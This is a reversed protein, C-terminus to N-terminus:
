SLRRCSEEEFAEIESGVAMLRETSLQPLQKKPVTSSYIVDGYKAPVLNTESSNLNAM